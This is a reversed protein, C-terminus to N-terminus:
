AHNDYGEIMWELFTKAKLLDEKGGKDMFRMLYQMLQVYDADYLTYIPLSNNRSAALKEVLKEIVDRVEIGEKPFLMYHKPKTVPDYISENLTTVNKGIKAKDKEIVLLQEEVTPSNYKAYVTKHIYRDNNTCADCPWEDSAVVDEYFCNNCRDPKSM